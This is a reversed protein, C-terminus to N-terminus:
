DTFNLLKASANHSEHIAYGFKTQLAPMEKQFTEPVLLNDIHIAIEMQIGRCAIERIDIEPVVHVERQNLSQGSLPRNWNM